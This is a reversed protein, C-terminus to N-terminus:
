NPVSAAMILSCILVAAMTDGLGASNSLANAINSGTGSRTGKRTKTAIGSSKM